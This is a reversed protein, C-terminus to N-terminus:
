VERLKPSQRSITEFCENISEQVFRKVKRALIRDDNSGTITISFQPSYNNYETSNTQNYTASDKEPSYASIGLMRGTQQWLEVGRKRKDRSLPIAMEPGDEGFISAQTAIGGNAYGVGKYANALSGYRSVAYRISALVNSLPDYINKDFGPRAFSKFTPGIVQMLGKSPIGKKANSDWLNIANPNGGSETQMQFLTRIVNALSYQHEMKLARTVLARWQTVGKSSNYKINGIDEILDDTWSVMSDSVTNVMAKSADLTYGGLGNYNVFKDKVASVLGKADDLYNWVDIDGTGNAYKFTPSKKGFLQATREASLVKMGKPANPIFVNKGQPIFANGNPMQVLEAGRGDNVLANGGKHGDTGRAYPTWKEVRKDSEFQKLIWNAGSIIKNVPSAMAKAAEVWISVISEKLSDGANKIGDGMKKPLASVKKVIDSINDEVAQLTDASVDKPKALMDWMKGLNNITESNVLKFFGSSKSAFSSLADGMAVMGSNEDGGFADAINDWLGGDKGLIESANKLETFLRSMLSFDEIHSISEFFSKVADGLLPLNTAINDWSIEGNFWGKVGGDKPLSKLSALCDFLQSAKKFSEAPINAASAFFNIVKDGSLLGLGRVLGDYNIEGNFWGKIGGEKPLSKLGALCDFLQTAKSFGEAPIKAIESFFGMTKENSLLGLGNVISSYNIDGNFWGKVGGEKPLSKLGALCDFLQSAKSFGEAPIKAVIEFFGQAGEIFSTLKKGLDAFNTGGTFWKTISDLINNSTMGLLFGTIATFFKGIGSMDASAFIDFMPKVNEAFKTLNQGIKPLSNSISEAMGGIIAGVCEGLTKFISVLLKGGESIFYDIDPLRAIAGFAIIIATIGALAIAIGALGMAVAPIPIMGAIGAFVVCVAGVAGLVAIMGVIQFMKKYNFELLTTASILLLLATLGAIAIAINALGKAVTAVPIKGITGAAKTMATGIAGLIAMATVVEVVAKFDTIEAIKKSIPAFIAVLLALGALIIALNAIGKLITSVKIAAFEKFKETLTKTNGGAGVNGKGFLGGLVSSVSKITKLAKFAVILGLVVPIFKKIANAIKKSSEAFKSFMKTLEPFQDGCIDVLTTFLTKVINPLAKVLGKFLSVAAKILPPILQEALVPLKDSIIPTLKEVLTGIGYLAREAVPIVNKGFIEVADVMNNMCQDLNEGSGIAILLNGWAAKTANLSGTITGAAEKETAGFIGMKKQIVNIAKVMNSFSLDNEKISSDVKAADAVLKEAGEKSGGYGLKLNDLVQFQNKALAQYVSKVSEMDTGFVNANDAMDQIAVNALEAAKKTDGGLDTILSAAFGTVNEMYDNASFGLKYSDNANKFVTDQAAILSDYEKKIASTSKGVSKAYENLDKGGTGFLKEVGGVNQEFDAFAQVSDYTIKAIGAAAAGIGALAATGVLKLSTLAARGVKGGINSLFGNMKSLGNNPKDFKKKDIDELSENADEGKDQMDDLSGNLGGSIARTVSSIKNNLEDLGSSDTEVSIQVIDKRIVNTM